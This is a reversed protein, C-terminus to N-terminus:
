NSSDATYLGKRLKGGEKLATGAVSLVPSSFLSVFAGVRFVCIGPDFINVVPASSISPDHNSPLSFNMFPIVFSPSTKFPPLYFLSDENRFYSIIPVTCSSICHSNRYGVRRVYQCRFAPRFILLLPV